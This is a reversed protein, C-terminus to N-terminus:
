IAASLFNGAKIRYLADAINIGAGQYGRQLLQCLMYAETHSLLLSIDSHEFAQLIQDAYALIPPNTSQKSHGSGSSTVYNMIQSHIQPLANM